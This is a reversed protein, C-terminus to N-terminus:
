RGGAPATALGLLEGDATLPERRLGERAIWQAQRSLHSLRLNPDIGRLLESPRVGRPKTALEAHLRLAGPHVGAGVLELGLVGPRLDDQVRRGKRERQIPVEDAALLADVREALQATAMGTVELIWDCSTVEEQLSGESGDLPCAAVVELGEPLLSSLETALSGLDAQAPDQVVRWGGPLESSASFRLDAYEAESAAGTPLALSFALLPHPSFGESYAVPLRGRRLARELARAVDRQSTWRIRGSKSYRIRVRECLARGDSGTM